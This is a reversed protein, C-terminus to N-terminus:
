FEAHVSQLSKDRKSIHNAPNTPNISSGTDHQTCKSLIYTRTHTGGSRPSQRTHKRQESEGVWHITTYFTDLDGQLKINCTFDAGTNLTRRPSGALNEKGHMVQAIAESKALIWSPDVNQEIKRSCRHLGNTACNEMCCQAWDTMTSQLQMSLSSNCIHVQLM